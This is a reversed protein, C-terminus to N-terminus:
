QSSREDSMSIELAPEVFLCVIRLIEKSQPPESDRKVKTYIARASRVARWPDDRWKNHLRSAERPSPDPPLQWRPNFSSPGNEFSSPRGRREAADGDDQELETSLRVPRFERIFAAVGDSDDHEASLSIYAFVDGRINDKENLKDKRRTFADVLNAKIGQRLESNIAFERLHGVFCVAVDNGPVTPTIELAVCSSHFAWLVLLWRLRNPAATAM